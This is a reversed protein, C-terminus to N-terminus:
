AAEDDPQDYALFEDDTPLASLPWSAMLAVPYYGAAGTPARGAFRGHAHPANQFGVYSEFVRTDFDIVYGYEAFLSDTPFTPASMFWGADLIAAPNGHTGRLLCYWDDTSRRSVTLDTYPALREIDAATPPITSDIPRLERARREAYGHHEHRLWELIDMGVSGPHADEHVYSTKEVGDVVFTIFGRTSM